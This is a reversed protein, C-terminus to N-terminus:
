ICSHQRRQSKLPLRNNSRTYRVVESHSSRVNQACLFLGPNGAKLKKAAERQKQAPLDILAKLQSWSNEAKTERILEAAEPDLKEGIEVKREITRSSRGTKAATAETFSVSSLKDSTKKGRGPGGKKTVPRSEPYLAVVSLKPQAETLQTQKTM